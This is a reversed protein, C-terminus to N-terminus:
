ENVEIATVMEDGTSRDGGPANNEKESIIKGLISDFVRLDFKSPLYHFHAPLGEPAESSQGIFIINDSVQSSVSESENDSQFIREGNFTMKGSTDYIICCATSENKLSLAQLYHVTFGNKRLHLDIPIFIYPQPAFISITYKAPDEIGGIECTFTRSELGLFTQYIALDDTFNTMFAKSIGTKLKAYKFLTDSFPYVFEDCERGIHVVKAVQSGIAICLAIKKGPTDFVGEFEEVRFQFNIADTIEQPLKWLPFLGAILDNHHVNYLEKQVDIFHGGVSTTKELAKEFVQSLFEDLLIIGLDHLLGALFATEINVDGILKAVRESILGVILYNYWFDVRDFGSNKSEKEFLKMVHMGMVIKRTENFGIRVIADKISTIRHNASAFFVSNAVKLIHTSISPDSVIAQALNSAGSKENQSIQLVKAVTFPFALLSSIHRIMAEIKQMPLADSNIILEIDKEKDSPQPPASFSKGQGKLLQGFVKLLVSFKLPREMYLTFGSRNIGTKVMEDIKEGYGAIPITKTRKYARLRKAFALQEICIHPLEIFVIDPIYQLIMVYNQYTPQSLIVKVGRQEFAAKLIQEERANQIMIILTVM